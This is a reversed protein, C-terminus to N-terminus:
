TQLKIDNTSSHRKCDTFRQPNGSTNPSKQRIRGHYIVVFFVMQPINRNRELCRTLLDLIFVQLCWHIVLVHLLNSFGPNRPMKATLFINIFGAIFFSYTMTMWFFQSSYCGLHNFSMDVTWYLWYFPLMGFPFYDEVRIKWPKHLVEPSYDDDRMCKEAQKFPHFEADSWMFRQDGLWFVNLSWCNLVDIFWSLPKKSIKMANLCIKLSECIKLSKQLDESTSKTYGFVRCSLSHPLQTLTERCADSTHTPIETCAPVNLDSVM